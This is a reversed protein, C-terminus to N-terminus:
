PVTASWTGGNTFEVRPEVVRGLEDVKKEIRLTALMTAVM